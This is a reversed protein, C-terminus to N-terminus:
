NCSFARSQRAPSKQKTQDVGTNDAGGVLFFLVAVGNRSVMM